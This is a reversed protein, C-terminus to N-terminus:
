DNFDGPEASAVDNIDNATLSARFATLKEAGYPLEAGSAQIALSADVVRLLQPTHEKIGRIHALALDVPDIDVM